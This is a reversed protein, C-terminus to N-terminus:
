IPQIASLFLHRNSEAKKWEKAGINRMLHEMLGDEAQKQRLLSEELEEGELESLDDESRYGDEDEPSEWISKETTILENSFVDSPDPPMPSM